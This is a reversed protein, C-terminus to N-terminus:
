HTGEHAIGDIESARGFLRNCIICLRVKDHKVAPIAAAAQKQEEAASSGSPRYSSPPPRVTPNTRSTSFKTPPSKNWDKGLLGKDERAVVQWFLM